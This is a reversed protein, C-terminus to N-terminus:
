KVALRELGDLAEDLRRRAALRVLPGGFHALGRLKQTVALRVESGGDASPELSIETVAESLIREFPSEEVEQRWVLRAPPDADVRTFDARVGKGRRSTLVKTWSEPTAEEVRAVGPWWRPLKDPDSVIRWLAEQAAPIKRRRTVRV